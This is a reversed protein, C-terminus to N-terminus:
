RGEDTQMVKNTVVAVGYGEFTVKGACTTEVVRNGTGEDIKLLIDCDGLRSDLESVVYSAVKEELHVLLASLRGKDSRAVVADM